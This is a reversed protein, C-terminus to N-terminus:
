CTSTTLETPRPSFRGGGNKCTSKVGLITLKLADFAPDHYEVVGPFLFDPRSRNETIATRKDSLRKAAVGEFYESLYGCRM